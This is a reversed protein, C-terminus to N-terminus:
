RVLQTGDYEKGNLGVFKHNYIPITVDQFKGDPFFYFVAFAQQWKTTSGKLYRQDYDCLCGLSKARVTEDHGAFSKSYEQVDHTHGYFVGQGWYEDVHKAAHYKNCWCGHIFTAKGVRFANRQKDSWFRIWKVDRGTLALNREVELLGRNQPYKNIYNEVRYEHNGELYIAECAKNKRRVADLVDDLVGAAADYDRLISQEQIEGPSDEIFRSICNLDVLDGLIICYDLRLTRAYALVAAISERDHYPAHIDPLM